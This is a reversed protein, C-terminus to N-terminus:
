NSTVECDQNSPNNFGFTNVPKITHSSGVTNYHWICVGNDFISEIQKRAIPNMIQSFTSKKLQKYDYWYRRMQFPRLEFIPYGNARWISSIVEKDNDSLEETRMRPFITPLMDYSNSSVNQFNDVQKTVDIQTAKLKLGGAALAGAGVIASVGGTFPAALVALGGAVSTAILRMMDGNAKTDNYLRQADITLPLYDTNNLPIFVSDAINDANKIKVMEGDLKMFSVDLSPTTSNGTFEPTINYERGKYMLVNKYFPYSYRKIEEDFSYLRNIGKHYSFEENITYETANNSAPFYTPKTTAYLAAGNDIYYILNYAGYAVKGKTSSITDIFLYVNNNYLITYDSAKIIGFPTICTFTMEFIYESGGLFQVFSNNKILDTWDVITTADKYAGIIPRVIYNGSEKLMRYMPIYVTRYNINTSDIYYEGSTLAPSIGHTADCKVRLFLIADDVLYKYQNKTVFKEPLRSDNKGNFVRPDDHAYEEFQSPTSTLISVINSTWYDIEAYIYVSPHNDSNNDSSCSNVFAFLKEDGNELVIYNYVSLVSYDGYIACELFRGSIKVSKYHTGTSGHNEGNYVVLKTLSNFYADRGSLINQPTLVDKSLTGSNNTYSHYDVVNKYTNDFPVKYLTARYFKM